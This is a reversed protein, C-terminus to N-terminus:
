EEERENNSEGELIGSKERSYNGKKERIRENVNRGRLRGDGVYECKGERENGVRWIGRM